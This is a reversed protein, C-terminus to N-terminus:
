EAGESAKLTPLAGNEIVLTIADEVPIHYVGAEENVAGFTTKLLEADKDHAILDGAPEGQLRVPDAWDGEQPAVHTYSNEPVYNPSDSILFKTFFLSVLISAATCVAVGITTYLVWMVTVDTKEYGDEPNPVHVSPKFM